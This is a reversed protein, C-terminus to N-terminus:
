LKLLQIGLSRPQRREKGAREVLRIENACQPMRGSFQQERAIRAQGELFRALYNLSIYDSFSSRRVAACM